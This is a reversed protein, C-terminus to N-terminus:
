VLGPRRQQCDPCKYKDIRLAETVTVNVCSGHYWEDCFDCQIMFRNQYPQRCSCYVKDTSAVAPDVTEPNELWHRIWLPLKRDRCLKIMDHNLANRVKVRYLYASLKTVIIGPGKWVIGLKKCEGKVSAKDLIYVPDKVAYTRQLIRLDYNRKMRKTATRLNSRAVEHAKQISEVLEAVFGEVDDKRESVQPLMLYAPTNVERGLMLKNATFGTQRNVSARLAGAIQQLHIDWQDQSKGIFCRVADMLTRNYREVQGNSSPRYPTTRAKHIHLVRCLEAFLKSEFNRGQDSFVQFPYGFRSFFHDVAARATEEATQTPLPICEVWKTFQDVMMLINVNGRPTEPLPGLFDLHVREMPAGAQYQTLPCKGHRASKKHKNCVECGIVYRKVYNGMGYWVFKEKLRERTRAVGQHGASPLDHNASVAKEKLSEPVVLRMDGSEQEQYLVEEILCFREKDLWYAKAAPSALFLDGEPPIASSRLWELIFQLDPDKGQAERLDELSMGWCSAKCTVVPESMENESSVTLVHVEGDRVIIEAHAFSEYQAETGADSNPDSAIPNVYVARATKGNDSNLSSVYDSKGQITETEGHDCRISVGHMGGKALPVAEDVDDTFSGWNQHARVCYKCGGCPLDEPRIGTVFAACQGEDARMRLLSDANEHKRGSRHRLVMNYQSLEEMWRALQGQPERFHTLWLLSSHDTRVTFPRGLLYHRYQRTFRLVALLERRTVCYKRQDATLALSGYAIVKEEGNQVQILEAGIAYDSADTDLILEDTRNPLALVPPHTLAEILADFATQQETEWKFKNKGVVRYLPEALRSFDKVFARHYNALGMFREVHKSCTPTPWDMVTKIDVESMSLSNQSVNRGLFEVQKQFFLCKKPKLKLGYQRFRALAEELNLLHDKFSNGLVLIDDLFALVTKWNLSRMVLNIVRAYTAPANCLGFGMRVHEFLGYKTLFATKRRDEERIKVQWYASNADLKSFWISGSLTDLCDDVLPLPFNDKVTAANLARYDICWRVTGDRKRILVPASAWESTSEQIVGARLMKQLHAEEENAFCAPTRRMRQKVPRSGQVDIEHEIETFNGLDYEDKAFVDQYQGLLESLQACEETTLNAKSNDYVQQLHDPLSVEPLSSQEATVEAM